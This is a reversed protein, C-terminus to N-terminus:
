RIQSDLLADRSQLEFARQANGILGCPIQAVPNAFRNLIISIAIKETAYDFTVLCVYAALRLVHMAGFKCFEVPCKASVIVFRHNKARNFTAAINTELHTTLFWRSLNQMVKDLRFDGFFRRQYDGIFPAAIAPNRIFIRKVSRDAVKLLFIHAANNM